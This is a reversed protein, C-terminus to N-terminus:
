EQWCEITLAARSEASLIVPYPRNEVSLSEGPHLVIDDGSVTVWASGSVVTFRQFTEPLRFTQGAPITLCIPALTLTRRTALTPLSHATM